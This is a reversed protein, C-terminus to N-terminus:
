EYSSALFFMVFIHKAIPFVYEKVKKALLDFEQETLRIGIIKTRERGNIFKKPRGRGRKKASEKM